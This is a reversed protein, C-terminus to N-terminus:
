LRVVWGRRSLFAVVAYVAALVILSYMLSAIPPTALRALVDAYLGRGHVHVKFFNAGLRSIVYATLANSGLRELLRVHLERRDVLWHTSAFALTALGAMFFAYSPTWLTKNIPVWWGMVLGILWTSAGYAILMEVRQSPSIRRLMEGVLGGLLVTSTAPLLSMLGEPDNGSATHWQHGQLLAEDLYHAINCSPSWPGDVCGPVGILLMSALYAANLLVVGALMGRVGWHVHITFALLYCVSIKQLVGTWQLHQFGFAPFAEVLLGIVFLLASRRFAHRVLDSRTAGRELRAATSLCVSVGVIWLFAPFITDAITWGSWVAHRLQPFASSEAGPNNVVIMAAVALGRFVDLSELRDAM